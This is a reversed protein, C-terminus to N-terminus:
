GSNMGALTRYHWALSFRVALYSLLFSLLGVGFAWRYSGTLDFVYGGLWPGLAMGLGFGIELFGFIIGVKRGGFIDGIVAGYIPNGSSHGFGFLFVFGYVLWRSPNAALFVLIGLGVLTILTALGHARDRGLRDSAFGWLLTGPARTVGILGFSFAAMLKDFGIHVLHAVVHTYYMSLGTGLAIHGATITWFPFSRFASRLTWQHTATRPRSNEGPQGVLPSEDGDIVQGVEGPRSRQFFGNLPVTVCLILGALAMFAMQWGFHSILIQSFPVLVLFGLGLGVASMGLVTGRNRQFWRSLLASNSVFGLAGQGMGVMVGYFLYFGSLSRSLGSLFLGSGILGGGLPMLIRPGLRDFIWGILPSVIAYVFANVSAISAGVGHSWRFDELLAVYFVSFSGTVGRMFFM